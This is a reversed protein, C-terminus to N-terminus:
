KPYWHYIIWITTISGYPLAWWAAQVRSGSNEYHFLTNANNEKLKKFIDSEKGKSQMIEMLLTTSNKGTNKPICSTKKRQSAELNERERKM